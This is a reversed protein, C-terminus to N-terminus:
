EAGEDEGVRIYLEFPVDDINELDYHGTFEYAFTGKGDKTSQWQFGGTSLAHKIHIAVFGGNEAGNKSSYDGVIWIDGFDEESLYNRPVIKAFPISQASEDAAGILKKGLKTNMTVFTGSAVPNFSNLRKLQWTNAPVNDIDEGYDSFEPNTVFSNGGSTAGIINNKDYSGNGPKFDNLIVGANIQISDFTDLRVQTFKSM